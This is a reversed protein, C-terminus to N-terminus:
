SSYLVSLVSAAGSAIAYLDGALNTLTVSQGATLRVGFTSATVYVNGLYITNSAHTNTLTISKVDASNVPTITTGVSIMDQNLAM